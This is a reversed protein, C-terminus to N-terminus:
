RQEELLNRITSMLDVYKIRCDHSVGNKLTVETWDEYAYSVVTHARMSAIEDVNIAVLNRSDSGTPLEVFILDEM